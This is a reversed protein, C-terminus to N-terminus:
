KLRMRSQVPGNTPRLTHSSKFMLPLFPAIQQCAIYIWIEQSVVTTGRGLVLRAANIAIALQTDEIECQNVGYKKRVEWTGRYWVPPPMIMAPHPSVAINQRRALHHHTLFFLCSSSASAAVPVTVSQLYAVQARIGTYGTQIIESPEKFASNLIHAETFGREADKHSPSPLGGSPLSLSAYRVLLHLISPTSRTMYSGISPWYRRQGNIGRPPIPQLSPLM